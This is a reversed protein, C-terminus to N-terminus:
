ALTDLPTTCCKPSPALSVRVLYVFRGDKLAKPFHVRLAVLARCYICSCVLTMAQFSIYHSVFKLYACTGAIM